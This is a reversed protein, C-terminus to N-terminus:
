LVRSNEMGEDVQMVNSSLFQAFMLFIAFFILLPPFFSNQHYPILKKCALHEKLYEGSCCYFYLFYFLNIKSFNKAKFEYM